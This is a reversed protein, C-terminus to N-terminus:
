GNFRFWYIKSNSADSGSPGVSGDGGISTFWRGVRDEEDQMGLVHHHEEMESGRLSGRVAEV